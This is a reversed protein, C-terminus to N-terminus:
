SSLWSLEMSPLQGATTPTSVSVTTFVLMQVYDGGVLPVQVTGNSGSDVSSPAWDGSAVSWLSGNLWLSTVTVDGTGGQSNTFGSLDAEYYGPCAVPCLWSFAPQSGTSVASWGGFPDEDITDLSMLNYFGGSMSQAAARHGRFVTGTSCFAFPSTVWTTFDNVVPFTGAPIGPVAPVPQPM